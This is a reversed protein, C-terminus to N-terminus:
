KSRTATFDGDVSYEAVNVTGAIKDGAGLTGQYTLTIPGGNYESKYVWTIKKGDVKGTLNGSGNDSQCSGTLDQDKQTFTCTQDSENDAISQHLKWQGSVSPADAAVAVAAASAVALTLLLSKM